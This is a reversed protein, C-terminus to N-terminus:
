RHLIRNVIKIASRSFSISHLKILNAHCWIPPLLWYVHLYHQQKSHGPYGPPISWGCGWSIWCPCICVGGGPISQAWETPWQSSLLEESCSWSNQHALCSRSTAQATDVPVYGTSQPFHNDGKICCENSGMRIVTDLKLSGLVLSITFRLLNLAPGGVPDPPQLGHDTLHLQSLM